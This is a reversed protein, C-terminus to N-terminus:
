VPGADRFCEPVEGDYPVVRAGHPLVDGPRYTQWARRCDLYMGRTRGIRGGEKGEGRAVYYNHKAERNAGSSGYGLHACEPGDPERDCRVQRGKHILLRGRRDEPWNHNQAYRLGPEWRWGRVHPVDWYGGRVEWKFLPEHSISPPRWVHRQRFVFAHEDPRSSHLRATVAAQAAHSHFEDEDIVLLFEPRVKEAVDLYRQRGHCKAQAPDRHRMWGHHIVTVRDDRRAIEDLIEGTGDVSLGDATVLGPSTSGYTVDAGHVFVWSCLGPWDKHQEYNSVLWEEENLLLTCLQIRPATRTRV